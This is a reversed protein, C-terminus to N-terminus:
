RILGLPMLMLGTSLVMYLCGLCIAGAGWVMAPWPRARWGDRVWPGLAVVGTAAWGILGLSHPDWHWLWAVAPRYAVLYPDDPGSWVGMTGIVDLFGNRALSGAVLLLVGFVLM